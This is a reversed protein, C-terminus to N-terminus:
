SITGCSTSIHERELWQNNEDINVIIVSNFELTTYGQTNPLLFQVTESCLPLSGISKAGNRLM